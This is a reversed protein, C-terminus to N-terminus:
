VMCCACNAVWHEPEVETLIPTTEACKCKDKKTCRPKFVCGAPPNLPSPVDGELIIRERTKEITPDPIPIASLLARTYAHIPNSYLENAPAIEVIHGLYMVAIRDSIHKVVSLDHAIFLYTLGFKEQLDELLNVVQAQISVDLASVPEDCVIFSPNVAIARAIGIRQRQGGSFEHPYRDAMYPSLGVISLLEAVKDRYEQRSNILKHVKLPEGIIDGATMRPNLSGYPDQFIIQVEKRMSRMDSANLETLETGDFQVKGETPEYLQLIARGATTKGCGSEGVLGLTEGKRIFFSVNDVAKVQGITKQLIVGSTVPFYMKLNEVNVLIDKTIKKSQSKTSTTM